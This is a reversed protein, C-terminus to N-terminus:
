ITEKKSITKILKDNKEENTLPKSIVLFLCDNSQKKESITKILKIMKKKM